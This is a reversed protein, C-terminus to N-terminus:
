PGPVVETSSKFGNRTFAQSYKQARAATGRPGIPVRVRVASDSEWVVSDAYVRRARWILLGRHAPSWSNSTPLLYVESAVGSLGGGPEAFLVLDARMTGRPSVTSSLPHYSGDGGFDMVAGCLFGLTVTWAIAGAMIARDAIRRPARTPSLDEDVFSGEHLDAVPSSRRNFLAFWVIVFLVGASALPIRRLWDAGSPLGELLPGLPLLSGVVVLSGLGGARVVAGTGHLCKRALIVQVLACGPLLWLALLGSCALLLWFVRDAFAQVTTPVSSESVWIPFYMAAFPLFAVLLAILGAATGRVLTNSSPMRMDENDARPTGSGVTRRVPGFATPGM